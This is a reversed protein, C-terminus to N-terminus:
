PYRGIQQLLIDFLAPALRSCEHPQVTSKPDLPCANSYAQIERVLSSWVEEVDVGHVKRKEQFHKLLVKRAAEMCHCEADSVITVVDNVAEQSILRYELAM